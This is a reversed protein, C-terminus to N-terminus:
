TLKKTRFLFNFTKNEIFYIINIDSVTVYGGETLGSEGYASKPGIIALVKEETDTLPKIRPRGGCTANVSARLDAAHKKTERRQDAWYKQWQDSTKRAGGMSKLTNALESWKKSKKSNGDSGEFRNNAFDKNAM